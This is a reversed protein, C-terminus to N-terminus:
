RGTARRLSRQLDRAAGPLGPGPRAFLDADVEVVRGERVAELRSWGPREALSARDPLGPGRPLVVVEPSRELITELSVAPWGERLEPFASRGGAVAIAQAVFTESGATRPPDGPILYLVPPRPVGRADAAVAALSDRVAEALSDAAANRGILTGVRDITAYLDTTDQIDARYLAIGHGALRGLGRDRRANWAFLLDPDLAILGELGPDLGGGLSPLNSLEPARDYRTRAVLSSGADLALIVDTVSPVLSVVRRAPRSLRVTRGADDIVSVAASAARRPNDAEPSPEPSGCGVLLTAVLAAVRPPVLRLPTHWTRLFPTM